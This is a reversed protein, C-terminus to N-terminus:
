TRHAQAAPVEGLATLVLAVGGAPDAMGLERGDATTVLFRGDSLPVVVPCDDSYPPSVTWSFHLTWHSTYPLLARLRPEGFAHSIFPHLRTLQVAGSSNAHYQRWRYDIAEGESREYAMAFGSTSLFPWASTLPGVAMGSQWAHMAAAVAALDDTNGHAMHVGRAWFQLCFVREQAGM